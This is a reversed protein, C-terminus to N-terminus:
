VTLGRNGVLHVYVEELTPRGTRLADIGADLLWRLVVPNADASVTHIRVSGPESLKDVREVQPLGALESLLPSQDERLTVDIRDHGSLMRGITATPETVLISGHDVLSVRDCLAEAESMDHTTILITRGEAKLEHVLDRFDRTALPDMGMTPEDLFLVAPDGILGRALHLRQRMGRSFGEVPEDARDALGVRELLEQSRRKVVSADVRYMTAWFVLNQRATIRTYLGNDGGFVIGIRRRVQDAETTVDHGAVLARGSTPLLMTSLIRVLTTKGAGNPGLVGHTEGEPVSLNVSDLAVVRSDQATPGSQKARKAQRGKKVFVRGLGTVEIMRKAGQETDTTPWESM